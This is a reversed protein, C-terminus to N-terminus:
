RSTASTSRGLRYKLWRIGCSLEQSSGSRCGIAIPILAGAGPRPAGPGLRLRGRCAIALAVVIGAEILLLREFRYWGFVALGLTLMVSLGSSLVVAWLLREEAPLAARGRPDLVPLRFVLAGPLWAVLAFALLTRLTM